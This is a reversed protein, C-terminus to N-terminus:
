TVAEVANLVKLCRACITKHLGDSGVSPDHIWCRECKEGLAPDIRISLGPIKSSEYAGSLEEEALINVNSVIFVTRLEHANPKVVASFEEPLSLTVAADLAHGIIKQGRAEELAKSVEGRLLLLSKWREALEDDLFDDNVEPLQALHVSTPGADSRSMHTWLEEATFVLIPAMLRVVADLITNLATQASRRDTSRAPSTYLRDKLVDLYFAGLDLVCYNYLEHYVAHFEFAKYATRAQRVLGQLRYLAFRDIEQMSEYPIADTEPDFDGLNGLMFRSTNRIRRYADTLQKLIKESIRVDDQYDSAAVWLRLIEGGYREIIEKPAIVNGKSKAMKEGKGDVVFGHTLVSEYPARGRTGTATLLASHFWGRHQDSGELYMDAPWSLYDRSELVATHSVGSDFWVDLIDKEKEFRNGECKPCTTGEPLLVSNDAEFWIDAGHAEFLSAVHDIIRRTILYEGCGECYFAVIPVGWSRQRSICWDPRNEIMGHIRDRGWSPIWTVEDICKLAKQRLGTKEMSIFWQETARFIVPERCRWCHPYTHEISGKSILMGLESLKSIVASNADFVFMGSFFQADDTFRGDDDVPSYIDLNYDLGVEYDERGHGPATHVCGTGADLTVHRAQVILSERDYLPHRCLKHELKMPDVQALIEYDNIGLAEMTNELLGRAMIYVEDSGVGVAVYEFAPHLAVALNAPITWPTTTWIVLYLRKGKLSPFADAIDSLLPFKVYISPSTRAQYEVEAEALATKCTSCWYIPKKSKFLSGDLAFKGFQRVITAVYGKKMTLYPNDWEGLVGLRRFDEKQIEIYKEAYARCHRRVELQSMEKKKNGLEQDVQHEIPLGHCDWGPVYPADFGNMQRSRIVIDKLIKNLATGIHINGNAYPPGDHLIFQPRGKSSERIQDYLGITGWKKLVEPERQSLKAKMPFATTPLNLTKKYDM